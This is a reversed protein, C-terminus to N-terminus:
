PYLYHYFPRRAYRHSTSSSRRGTDLQVPEEAIKEEIFSQREPVWKESPRIVYGHADSEAIQLWDDQALSELLIMLLISEEKTM